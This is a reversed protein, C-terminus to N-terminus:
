QLRQQEACVRAAWVFFWIDFTIEFLCLLIALVAGVRRLATAPWFRVLVFVAAVGLLALLVMVFRNECYSHVLGGFSFYSLVALVLAAVM